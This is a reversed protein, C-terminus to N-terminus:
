EKRNGQKGKQKKKKGKSAKLKNEEKELTKCHFTLNNIQTFDKKKRLIPM